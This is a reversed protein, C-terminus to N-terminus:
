VGFRYAIDFSAHKIIERNDFAFSYSTPLVLEKTKHIRSYVTIYKNNREKDETITFKIWDPLTRPEWTYGFPTHYYKVLIYNYETVKM